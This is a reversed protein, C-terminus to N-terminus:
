ALIEGRGWRWARGNEYGRGRRRHHSILTHCGRLSGKLHGTWSIGGDASRVTAGAEIGVNIINPDTPSLAIAQVYATYPKEAPSLWLSRFLTTYPFLTSRPPRRIM